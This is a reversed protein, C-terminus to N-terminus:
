WGACSLRRCGFPLRCGPSRAWDPAAVVLRTKRRHQPGDCANGPTRHPGYVWTLRDPGGPIMSKVIVHKTCTDLYTRRPLSLWAGV